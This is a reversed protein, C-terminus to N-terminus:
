HLVVSSENDTSKCNQAISEENTDLVEEKLVEVIKASEEIQFDRGIQCIFDTHATSLASKLDKQWNLIMELNDTTSHIEAEVQGTQNNILPEEQDHFLSKLKEQM